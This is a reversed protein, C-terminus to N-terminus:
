AEYMPTNKIREEDTPNHTYRDSFPDASVEPMDPKGLDVFEEKPPSILRDQLTVRVVPKLAPHIREVAELVYFEKDTQRCLRQAEAIASDKDYHRYRTSSSESCWVLWFKHEKM